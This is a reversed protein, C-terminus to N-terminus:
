PNTPIALLTTHHRSVNEATGMDVIGNPNDKADYLDSLLPQLRTKLSTQAIARGRVSITSEMESM